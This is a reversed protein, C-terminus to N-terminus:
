KILVYCAFGVPGFLLTLPLCWVILLHPIGCQQADLVIYRGILLDFSIYHVWGAFVAPRWSFLTAVEELSNFGAGKPEGELGGFMCNGILLAYLVAYIFSVVLVLFPTHRWSPLFALLGWGIVVGNLLPFIDDDSYEHLLPIPM